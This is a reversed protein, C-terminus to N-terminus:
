NPVKIILLFYEHGKRKISKLDDKVKKFLFM